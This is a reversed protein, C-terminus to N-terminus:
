NAASSSKWSLSLHDSDVEVALTPVISGPPPLNIEKTLYTEGIGATVLVSVKSAGIPVKLTRSFSGQNSGKIGPFGGKGKKGKLTEALLTGGGSSFTFTAEKFGYNCVVQVPRPVNEIRTYVEGSTKNYVWFALLEAVVYNDNSTIADPSDITATSSHHDNRYFPPQLKCVALVGVSQKNAPAQEAPVVFEGHIPEISGFISPNEQDVHRTSPFDVAYTAVNTKSVEATAGYANMGIYSGEDSYTRGLKVVRRATWGREGGYSENMTDRIESEIDVKFTSTDADYKIKFPENSEYPKGWPDCDMVGELAFAYVGSLLLGGLIPEAEEKKIRQQWQETTEFEGKGKSEGKAALKLSLQAVDHGRYLPPLSKANLDFETASFTAGTCGKQPYAQAFCLLQVCIMYILGRLIKKMVGIGETHAKWDM